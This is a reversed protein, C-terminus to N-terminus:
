INGASAAAVSSPGGRGSQGGGKPRWRNGGILIQETTFTASEQGIVTHMLREIPGRRRRCLVLFLVAPQCVFVSDLKRTSVDTTVLLHKAAEVRVHTVFDM